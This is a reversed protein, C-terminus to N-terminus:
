HIRGIRCLIRLEDLNRGLSSAMKKYEDLGNLGIRGAYRANLFSSSMGAVKAFQRVSLNKRKSDIFNSFTGNELHKYITDLPTNTYDSLACYPIFKEHNGGFFTYLRHPKLGRSESYETKSMGKMDPLLEDPWYDAGPRGM